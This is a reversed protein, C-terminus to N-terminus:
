TRVLRSEALKYEEDIIKLYPIDYLECHFHYIEDKRMLDAYLVLASRVADSYLEPHQERIFEGQQITRNFGERLKLRVDDETMLM